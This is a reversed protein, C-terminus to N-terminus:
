RPSGAAILFAALLAIGIGASLAYAPASNSSVFLRVRGAALRLPVLLTSGIIRLDGTLSNRRAYAADIAIKSPLVEATYDAAPDASAALVRAEAAAFRVQAPGTLGPPVGLIREYDPRHAAVFREDEPRPGVLRMEGRLVNWLQPLEDLRSARLFRGLPTVRDDGAHSVAAGSAGSRMTRFKLMAFPRGELGVRRARYIVGGPSDLLVLVAVLLVPVILLPILLAVCVLDFARQARPIRAAAAKVMPGTRGGMLM